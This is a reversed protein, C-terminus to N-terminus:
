IIMYYLCCRTAWLQYSFSIVSLHASSHKQIQSTEGGAFNATLRKLQFWIAAILVQLYEIQRNYNGAKEDEQKAEPEKKEEEDEKKDGNEAVKEEKKEDGEEAEKEKKDKKKGKEEKSSKKAPTAPRPKPELAPNLILKGINKRDHMVQM